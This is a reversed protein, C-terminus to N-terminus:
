WTIDNKSNLLGALYNAEVNGIFYEEPKKNSLKCLIRHQDDNITRPIAIHTCSLNYQKCQRAALINNM